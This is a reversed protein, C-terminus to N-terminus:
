VHRDQGKTESGEATALLSALTLPVEGFNWGITTQGVFVTPSSPGGGPPQTQRWGARAQARILYKGAPLRSITYNGNADTVVMPEGPSLKGDRNLDAFVIWGKLGREGPDLRGDANSDLFVRGSVAGPRQVEFAGIDVRGNIIRSDGRQDRALPKGGPGLALVNSGADIAPSGPLLAMTVTPGGNDALPGLKLAAMSIGVQNGNKGNVLGGSKGPGILNCVSAPSLLGTVDSAAGATDRNGAVISNFQSVAGFNYIGGGAVAVNASLTCQTIAVSVKASNYVAGGDNASNGSLTCNAITLRGNYDNDIGGGNGDASNGSLTCNALTLTADNSIGGGAGHASNGALTCNTLTLTGDNSIGGGDDYAFNGSLRCDTLTAMGHNDIGGGDGFQDPDASSTNGSITCNALTLTSMSDNYIGGAMVGSNGSLTCGALALITMKGNYIGGGDDYARNDSLVCNTLKLTSGGNYIGAGDGASNGSFTCGTVTLNGGNYIGGGNDSIAPLSNDAFSCGAIALTGNNFIGGGGAYTNGSTDTFSTGTGNAIMLGSITATTGANIDFVSFDALATVNREVKLKSAGPGDLILADDIM